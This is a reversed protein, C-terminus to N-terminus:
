DIPGVSCEPFPLPFVREPDYGEPFAFHPQVPLRTRDLGQRKWKDQYASQIAQGQHKWYCTAGGKDCRWGVGRNKSTLRPDYHARAGCVPCKKPVAPFFGMRPTEAPTCNGKQLAVKVATVAPCDEELPCTCSLDHSVVHMQPHVDPGFDVQYFYKLHIRVVAEKLLRTLLLRVQGNARAQSASLRRDLVFTKPYRNSM